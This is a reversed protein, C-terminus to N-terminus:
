RDPANMRAVIRAAADDAIPVYDLDRAFAQGYQLAWTFFDLVERRRTADAGARPVLIFTAGAIPWGRGTQVPAGATSAAGGFAIAEAFRDPDARVFTGAADRLSVDSLRHAKAYAYEVYGISARTRKVYSAVGENGTGAVGTPWEVRTGFGVERRWDTSEACLYSTWLYTTGSADERHVVTIRSSPLHLTPNLAAIAADNWHTIRASFIAALADGSLKLDGPAIGSINVVPIVGGIVAPFEVLHDRDLESDSEPVDSAGFDVSRVRILELGRGSGVPDYQVVVGTERGYAEAWKTYIPAPFTAGAGHIEAADATRFALTM